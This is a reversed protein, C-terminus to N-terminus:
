PGSTFDFSLYGEKTSWHHYNGLKLMVDNISVGPKIEETALYFRKRPSTVANPVFWIAATAIAALLIGGAGAIGRRQKLLIGGWFILTLAICVGVIKLLGYSLYLFVGKVELIYGIM